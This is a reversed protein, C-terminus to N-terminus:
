HSGTTPAVAVPGSVEYGLIGANPASKSVDVFAQFVTFPDGAANGEPSFRMWLRSGCVDWLIARTTSTDSVGFSISADTHKTSRALTPGAGPVPESTRVRTTDFGTFGQGDGSVIVWDTGDLSLELVAASGSAAM